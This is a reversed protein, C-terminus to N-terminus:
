LRYDSARQRGQFPRLSLAAYGEADHHVGLLAARRSGEVAFRSPHWTGYRELAMSVCTALITASRGIEAMLPKSIAAGFCGNGGIGLGSKSLKGSEAVM